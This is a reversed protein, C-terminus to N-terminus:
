CRLRTSDPDSTGAAGREEPPLPSLQMASWWDSLWAALACRSQSQPHVLEVWLYQAGGGQEVSGGEEGSQKEGRKKVEEKIM